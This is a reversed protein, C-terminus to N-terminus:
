ATLADQEAIVERVIAATLFVERTITRIDKDSLEDTGNAKRIKAVMKAIDAKDESSAFYM